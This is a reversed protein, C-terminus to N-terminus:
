QAGGNINRGTHDLVYWARGDYHQEAYANAEDDGIATFTDAIDWEGSEMAFALTYKREYTHQMMAEACRALDDIEEDSWNADDADRIARLQDRDVTCGVASWTCRIEHGGVNVTDRDITEVNTNRITLM